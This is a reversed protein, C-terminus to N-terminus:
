DDATWGLAALAEQAAERMNANADALFPRLPEVARADGLAGLALIAYYRVWYVDGLLGILTEFARVDGIQGLSRGANMRVWWDPDSRALAILPEVARVDGIRGLARVARRRLRTQSHSLLGLLPDVARADGVEALSFAARYRVSPTPHNLLSVIHLIAAKGGLGVESGSLRVTHDSSLGPPYHRSFSSSAGPQDPAASNDQM